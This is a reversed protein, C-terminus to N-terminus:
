WAAKEGKSMRKRSGKMFNFQKFIGQAGNFDNQVHGGCVEEADGCM